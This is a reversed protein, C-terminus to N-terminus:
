LRWAFGESPSRFPAFCCRHLFLPLARPQLPPPHGKRRTRGAEFLACRTIPPIPSTHAGGDAGTQGENCPRRGGRRGERKVPTTRADAGWSM